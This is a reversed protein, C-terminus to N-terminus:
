SAEEIVSKRISSITTIEDGCDLQIWIFPPSAYKALARMGNDCTKVTSIFLTPINLFYAPGDMGGSQLGISITNRGNRLRDLVILQEVHNLKRGFAHEMTVYTADFDADKVFTDDPRDGCAVVQRKLLRSIEYLENVVNLKSNRSAPERSGRIWCFAIKEGRQAEEVFADTEQLFDKSAQSFANSYRVALLDHKYVKAIACRLEAKGIKNCDGRPNGVGLQTASARLQACHGLLRLYAVDLIEGAACHYFEGFETKDLYVCYPTKWLM